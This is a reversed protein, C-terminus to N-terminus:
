PPGSHCSLDVVKQIMDIVRPIVQIWQQLWPIFHPIRLDPIM